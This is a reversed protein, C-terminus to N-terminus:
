IGPLSSGATTLNINSSQRVTLAPTGSVTPDVYSSSTTTWTAAQTHYAQAYSITPNCVVWYTGNWQLLQNTNSDSYIEWLRPNPPATSCQRFSLSKDITFSSNSM